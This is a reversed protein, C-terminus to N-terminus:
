TKTVDPAPAEVQPTAPVSVNVKLQLAGPGLIDRLVANAIAEAVPVNGGTAELIRKVAADVVARITGLIIQDVEPKPFLKFRDPDEPAGIPHGNSGLLSM